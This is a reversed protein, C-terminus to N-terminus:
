GDVERRQGDKISLSIHSVRLHKIRKPTSFLSQQFGQFGDGRDQAGSKLSFLVPVMNM